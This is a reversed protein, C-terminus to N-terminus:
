STSQSTKGLLSMAADVAAFGALAIAGVLALISGERMSASIQFYINKIQASPAQVLFVICFITSAIGLAMAPLAFAWGASRLAGVYMPVMLLVAALLAFIMTLLAHWFDWGFLTAEFRLKEQIATREDEFKALQQKQKSSLRDELFDNDEMDASKLDNVANQIQNALRQAEQPNQWQLNRVQQADQNMKPGDMNAEAHYWPLFFAAIALAAGSSALYRWLGMEKISRRRLISRGSPAVPQATPIEERTQTQTANHTPQAVQAKPAPAPAPQARVTAQDDAAAIVFTHGCSPCATQKGEAGDPVEM